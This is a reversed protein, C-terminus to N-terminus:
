EREERISERIRSSRQGRESGAAAGLGVMALPVRIGAETGGTPRRRLRLTGDILEIRSRLSFLGFGGGSLPTCDDCELASGIGVGDDSVVLEVAAPEGRIIVEAQEARAHRCVNLMLERASRYLIVKLDEPIPPLAGEERCAFRLRGRGGLDAALWHLAPILGGQYLIPPSLEFVLDRLQGLSLDLLALMRESRAPAAPDGGPGGGPDGRPEGAALMRALVLQQITSDHLREALRRREREEALALEADMERMRRHARHLSETRAALSAELDRSLRSLTTHTTVRAVLVRPEFPKVVYDVGGADFGRLVESESGRATMFIVPLHRHRPDSKLERCLAYGDQDPLGVDLLVLDCPADELARRAELASAAARSQIGALGLQRCILHALFADDDVVLLRPPVPDCTM